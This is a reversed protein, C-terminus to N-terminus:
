VGSFPGQSVLPGLPAQQPQLSRSTQEPSPFGYLTTRQRPRRGHGLILAEMAPPALEQGHQAGAARTISENMLSGGMDNCGARLLQGARQPGMKVWSAQINPVWPHLALRGVAHM